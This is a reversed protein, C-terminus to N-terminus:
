SRKVAEDLIKPDQVAQGVGMNVVIRDLRPVEM